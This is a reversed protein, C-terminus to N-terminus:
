RRMRWESPSCDFRQRFRRAFHSVDAFGWDFAITGVTETIKAADRLDAAAGDLRREMVYTSFSTGTREFLKHVYRESIGAAIAVSRVSLDARRLRQQIIRRLKLGVADALTHEIEARAPRALALAVLDLLVDFLRVGDQESLVLANQNLTRATEAILHGVVPDDSVRAAAFDFSAPLRQDLARHPVWFSAVALQAGADHDICFLQASDFIGVQGPALTVTRGGQRIHTRGHLKLNLYYCADTSAAIDAPLRKITHSPFRVRNIAAAGFTVSDVQARFPAPSPLEPTLAMFAKCIAERYYAFSEQPRANDTDWVRRRAGPHEGPQEQRDFEREARLM